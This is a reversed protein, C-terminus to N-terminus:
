VFILFCLHRYALAIQRNLSPQRSAENKSHLLAKAAAEDRTRRSEQKGNQTNLATAAICASGNNWLM